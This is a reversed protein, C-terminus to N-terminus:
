DRGSSQASRATPLKAGPESMEDSSLPVPRRQAVIPATQSDQANSTRAQKLGRATRDPKKPWGEPRKM